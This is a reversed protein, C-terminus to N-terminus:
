KRNAKAQAREVETLNRAQSPILIPVGSIIPYALKAAFCILEKRDKSLSLRAGTQPCVLIELMKPDFLDDDM